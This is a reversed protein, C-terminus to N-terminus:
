EVQAGPGGVDAPGALLAPHREGVRLAVLEADEGAAQGARGGPAVGAARPTRGRATGYRGVVAGRGGANLEPGSSKGARLVGSPTIRSTTPDSRSRHDPPVPRSPRLRPFGIVAQPRHD